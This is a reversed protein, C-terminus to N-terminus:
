SLLEETDSVNDSVIIPVGFAETPFPAPAGSTTTATRAQQLQKRSRRSMVLHTPMKDVPYAALLDAILDDTLGKGSDETLNAIRGLDYASGVQLGLWIGGPTYYAAHTKNDTGPNVINKVITTEGLSIAPGDGKYVGVVGNSALRVGYVSSATDATTGTADVVLSDAVADVTSADRIGTYGAADGSAAASDSAGIVGNIVQAEHKTIAAAVHRLGEKAILWEQGRKCEEARATDVLWSFDLYKLTVTVETDTSHDMDRGANVARFGVVPAGTEKSYKHTSGNSSEEMAMAGLLPTAKLIDSVEIDSLDLGDGIVDALGLLDDAM